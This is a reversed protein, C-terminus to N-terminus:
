QIGGKSLAQEILFFADEDGCDSSEMVMSFLLSGDDHAEAYGRVHKALTEFASKYTELPFLEEINIQGGGLIESAREHVSGVLMDFHEVGIYENNKQKTM